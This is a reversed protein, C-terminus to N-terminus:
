WRYSFQLAISRPAELFGYHGKNGFITYATPTDSAYMVIVEDTLNKGVLALEWSRDLAAVGARGNFKVYGDQQM